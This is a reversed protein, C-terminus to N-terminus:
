LINFFIIPSTHSQVTILNEPYVFGLQPKITILAHLETILYIIIIVLSM